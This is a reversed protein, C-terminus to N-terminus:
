DKGWRWRPPKGTLWYVAALALSLLAVSLTSTFPHRDLRFLLAALGLLAFYPTLAARGQWRLPLSWGWGYHKAPFWYEHVPSM